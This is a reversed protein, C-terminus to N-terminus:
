CSEARIEARFARLAKFIRYSWYVVYAGALMFPLGYAVTMIEVLSDINDPAFVIDSAVILVILTVLLFGIASIFRRAMMANVVPVVCALFVLMNGILAVTEHPVGLFVLGVALEVILLAAYLIFLFM